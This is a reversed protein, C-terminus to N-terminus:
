YSKLRIDQFIIAEFIEQASQGADLGAKIDSDYTTDKTIAKAYIRPNSTMGRLGYSEIMAELEGSELQTRDLYDIWISQGYEKIKLLPNKTM